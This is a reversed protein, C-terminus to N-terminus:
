HSIFVVKLHPKPLVCQLSKLWKDDGVSLAAQAEDLSGLFVCAVSRGTTEFADPKDVYVAPLTLFSIACFVIRTFM